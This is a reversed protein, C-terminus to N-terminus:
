LNHALLAECEPFLFKSDDSNEGFIISRIHIVRMGLDAETSAEGLLLHLLPEMAFEWVPEVLPLRSHITKRQDESNPGARLENAIFNGLAFISMDGLIDFIAVDVAFEKMIWNRLYVASLSDAGARRPPEEVRINERPTLSLNGIQETLVTAVIEAMEAVSSAQKLMSGVDLRENTATEVEENGSRQALTHSWIPHAFAEPLSTKRSDHLSPNVIGSIVQTPIEDLTLHPDCFYEFFGLIEKESLVAYVGEAVLRGKLGETHSVLGGTALIGLDLSVAKEGLSQRYRALADQYTNGAAYNIQTAQGIIGSISSTLIFFDMGKPLLEHLNWTGRTKPDVATKWDDFSMNCYM